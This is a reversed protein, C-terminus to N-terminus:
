FEILKEQGKEITIVSIKALTNGKGELLSKKCEWSIQSIRMIMNLYVIWTMQESVYLNLALNSNEQSV